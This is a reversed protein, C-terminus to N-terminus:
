RSAWAPWRGDINLVLVRKDNLDMLELRRDRSFVLFRGDKSWAYGDQWPMGSALTERRGSDVNLSILDRTKSWARDQALITIKSNTRWHANLRLPGTYDTLKREGT